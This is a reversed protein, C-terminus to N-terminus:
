QYLRSAAGVLRTLGGFRRELRGARAPGLAQVLRARMSDAVVADIEDSHESAIEGPARAGAAVGDAGEMSAFYAVATRWTQEGDALVARLARQEAATLGARAEGPSPVGLVPLTPAGTARAALSGAGLLGVIVGIAFGMWTQTGRPAMGSRDSDAHAAIMHLVDNGTM